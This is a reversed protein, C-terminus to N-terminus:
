LLGCGVNGVGTRGLRTYIRDTWQYRYTVIQHEKWGDSFYADFQIMNGLKPSVICFCEQFTKAVEWEYIKAASETVPEMVLIHCLIHHKAKSDFHKAFSFSVSLVQFCPLDWFSLITKFFM